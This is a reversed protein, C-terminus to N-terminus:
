KKKNVDNTAAPILKLAMEEKLNVHQGEAIQLAQDLSNLSILIEVAKDYQKNQLL